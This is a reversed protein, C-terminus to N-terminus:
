SNAIRREVRGFYGNRRREIRGKAWTACKFFYTRQRCYRPVSTKVVFTDNGFERAVAIRTTSALDSPAGHSSQCLTKPNGSGGLRCYLKSWNFRACNRSCPGRTMDGMSADACSRPPRGYCMHWSASWFTFLSCQQDRCRGATTGDLALGSVPRLQLDSKHVRFAAETLQIYARWLNEGSWDTVNSRLLYCGESIRPWERWSELKKWQQQARGNADAEVIVEFLKAARSNEGLLRGVRQAVQTPLWKRKGCRAQIKYRRLNM